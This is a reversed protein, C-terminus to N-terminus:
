EGHRAARYQRRLATGHLAYFTGILGIVVGPINFIPEAGAPGARGVAERPEDSMSM